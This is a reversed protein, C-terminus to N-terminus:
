FQLYDQYGDPLKFNRFITNITGRETAACLPQVHSKNRKFM